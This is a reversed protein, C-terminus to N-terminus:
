EFDLYPKLKDMLDNYAHTIQQFEELNNIKGNKERFALITKTLYADMYPHSILEKYTASNIHIKRIHTPSLTFYKECLELDVNQLVYVEQLQSFSHFGGLRERYEVLKQARKSGFTPVRMIDTTDCRNLDIKVIEYQPRYPQFRSSDRRGRITDDQWYGSSINSGKRQWRAERAARASDDAAQQEAYFREVESRFKELDDPGAAKTDYLFNVTFVVIILALLVATAIFEGRPINFFKKM